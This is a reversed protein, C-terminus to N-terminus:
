RGCMSEIAAVINLDEQKYSAGRDGSYTTPSVLGLAQKAALLRGGIGLWFAYNRYNAYEKLAERAAEIEHDVDIGAIKVFAWVRWRGSQKDRYSILLYKETLEGGEQSQIKAQVLRKYGIIGAADTAFMGDFLKNANLLVPLQDMYGPWSTEAVAQKGEALEMIKLASLFADANKVADSDTEASYARTLDRLLCGLVLVFVRTKCNM